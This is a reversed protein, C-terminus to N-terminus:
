LSKSPKYALGCISDIGASRLCTGRIYRVSKVFIVCICASKVYIGIASCIDKACSDGICAGLLFFIAPSSSFYTKLDTVGALSITLVLLSTIDSFNIFLICTKLELKKFSIFSKHM